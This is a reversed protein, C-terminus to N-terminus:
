AVAVRVLAWDRLRVRLAASQARTLAFVVAFTGVYANENLKLCNIQDVIKSNQLYIISM